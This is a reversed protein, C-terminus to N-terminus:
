EDEQFSKYYQEILKEYRAPFKAKIAGYAPDRDKDRIDGWPSRPGARFVRRVEAGPTQDNGGPEGKGIGEGPSGGGSGKGPKKQGQGPKSSSGKCNCEREEAEKILKALIDVIKEQQEQTDKGSNGQELKRRAFDMREFVDAISEDELAKLQQLQRWAGVRMREPADAFTELFHELSQIADERRLLRSESVGRLFWADADLTTHDSHKETVSVLLPLAYSFREQIIHAQAHYLRAEAALYPDDSDSLAVLIAVGAEFDEQGISTVAVGFEPYLVRLGETIATARAYADEELATVTEIAEKSREKDFDGTECHKIFADIKKLQALEDAVASNVNALM